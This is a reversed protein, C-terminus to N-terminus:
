PSTMEVMPALLVHGAPLGDEGAADGACGRVLHGRQGLGDEAHDERDSVPRRLRRVDGPQGLEDDAEGGLAQGADSQDSRQFSGVSSSLSRVLRATGGPASLLGTIAKAVTCSRYESASM